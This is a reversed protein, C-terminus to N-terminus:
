LVMITDSRISYAMGRKDWINYLSSHLLLYCTQFICKENQYCIISFLAHGNFIYLFAKMKLLFTQFLISPECGFYQLMSSLAGKILIINFHMIEVKEKATIAQLSLPLTLKRDQIKRTGLCSHIKSIRCVTKLILLSPYFEM